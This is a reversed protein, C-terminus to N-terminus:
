PLTLNNQLVCYLIGASSRRVLSPELLSIITDEAPALFMRKITDRISTTQMLHELDEIVLLPGDHQVGKEKFGYGYMAVGWHCQCDRVGVSCLLATQRRVGAPHHDRALRGSEPGVVAKPIKLRWCMNHPRQGPHVALLYVGGVGNSMREHPVGDKWCNQRVQEDLFPNLRVIGGKLKGRGDRLLRVEEEFHEAQVVRVISSLAANREAPSLVPAFNREAQPKRCNNVFRKIWGTVGLLKDLSSYRELLFAPNPKPVLQGANVRLGRDPPGLPARCENFPWERPSETLWQPGWWLPHSVLDPARCGRSACDAPNWEGPVHRWVLPTESGTIQSVRNAVFVELTHVSTQLWCLVIRSDTWAYVTEDLNITGRLNCKVHNLLRALLVAGALELKPITWRTRVPAVKSKAMVLRVDVTGTSSATRRYVAAAYGRESADCFGHLTAKCGASPVLKRPIAIHVIGPLTTVFKLWDKLLEGSLQDDWGLNALWLRQLFCKAMFTVPAIWGNPYFTRAITSLVSRKTWTKELHDPEIKYTFVDHTPRYQVGLIGLTNPNDPNEFLHPDQHFEGPLGALLEPCSSLWKRLEYGGSGM